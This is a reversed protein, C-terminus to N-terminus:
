PRVTFGHKAFIARAEASALYALFRRATPGDRGKLLAVPYTIPDHSDAPFIGAVTVRKSAAVDTAYVIGAAAEGREVLVLASRVNDARALRPEVAAWVGLRELAQRAYRGVPVHAPDGTAIRGAPLAALWAGDGRITLTRAQAAPVVLVLANGLLPRRTEPIILGRQDLYDLWATDAALFLDGDAGAEIQKALTSSAAFSFTVPPGGARGFAGGIEQLADTLSSAAFVILKAPSQAATKPVAATLLCLMALVTTLLARVNEL